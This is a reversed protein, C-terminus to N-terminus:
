RDDSQEVTFGQKMGPLFGAAKVKHAVSTNQYQVLAALAAPGAKCCTINQANGFNQGAAVPRQCRNRVARRNNLGEARCGQKLRQFVHGFRVTFKQAMDGLHCSDQVYSQM